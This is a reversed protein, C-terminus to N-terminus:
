QARTLLQPAQKSAQELIAALSTSPENHERAGTMYDFFVDYTNATIKSEKYTMYLSNGYCGDNTMYTCNKESELARFGLRRSFAAHALPYAVTSAAWTEGAHKITITYSHAAREGFFFGELVDLQVSYGQLELTDVLAMISRGRNLIQESTTRSPASSVVGIKVVRRAASLHETQQYFCEPSGSLYEGVDVAGGTAGFDIVPETLYGSGAIDGSLDISQLQQAGEPWYGGNLGCDIADQLGHGNDWDEDRVKESANNAKAPRQHKLHRDSVYGAFDSISSFTHETYSSFLNRM